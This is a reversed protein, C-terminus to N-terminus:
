GDLPDITRELYIEGVYDIGLGLATGFDKVINEEGINKIVSLETLIRRVAPNMGQIITKTGHKHALNVM